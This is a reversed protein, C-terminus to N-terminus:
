EHGIPKIPPLLKDCKKCKISSGNKTIKYHHKCKKKGKKLKLKIETILVKRNELWLIPDEAVKDVLDIIGKIQRKNLGM